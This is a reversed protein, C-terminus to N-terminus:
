IPKKCHDAHFLSYDIQVQSWDKRHNHDWIAKADSPSPKIRRLEEAEVKEKAM